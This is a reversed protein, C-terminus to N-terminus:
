RQLDTKLIAEILMMSDAGETFNTFIKLVSVSAAVCLHHVCAFIPHLQRPYPIVETEVWAIKNQRRQKEHM